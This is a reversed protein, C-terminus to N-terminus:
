LLIINDVIIKSKIEFLEVRIINQNFKAKVFINFMDNNEIKFKFDISKMLCSNLSDCRLIIRHSGNKCEFDFNSVPSLTIIRNKVNIEKVFGETYYIAMHNREKKM